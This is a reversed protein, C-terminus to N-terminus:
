RDEDDDDLPVEVSQDAVDYEDAELPPETLRASADRGAATEPDSEQPDDVVPRRQEDADADPVEPDDAWPAQVPEGRGAQSAHSM